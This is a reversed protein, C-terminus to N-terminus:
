VDASRNGGRTTWQLQSPRARSHTVGRGQGRDPVNARAEAPVLSPRSPQSLSRAKRPPWIADTTCRKGTRYGPTSTRPRLHRKLKQYKASLDLERLQDTQSFDSRCSPSCRELTPPESHTTYAPDVSLRTFSPVYLPYPTTANITCTGNGSTTRGFYVTSREREEQTLQGFTLRRLTSM